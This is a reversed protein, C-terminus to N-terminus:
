HATPILTKVRLIHMCSNKIGRGELIMQILNYKFDISKIASPLWSETAMNASTIYHVLHCTKLLYFNLINGNTVNFKNHIYKTINTINILINHMKTINWLYAETYRKFPYM